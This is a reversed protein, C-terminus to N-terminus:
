VHVESIHPTYADFFCASILLRNRYKYSIDFNFYYSIITNEKLHKKTNMKKIFFLEM